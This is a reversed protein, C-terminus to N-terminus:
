ARGEEEDITAITTPTPDAPPAADWRHSRDSAAAAIVATAAAAV